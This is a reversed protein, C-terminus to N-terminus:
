LKGLAERLKEGLSFSLPNEYAPNWDPNERKFANLERFISDYEAREAATLCKAGLERYRAYKPFRKVNDQRM